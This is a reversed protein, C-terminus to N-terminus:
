DRARRRRTWCISSIPRPRAMAYSCCACAPVVEESRFVDWWGGVQVQSRGYPSATGRGRESGGESIVRDRDLDYGRHAFLMGPTGCPRGSSAPSPHSKDLPSLLQQTIHERDRSIM